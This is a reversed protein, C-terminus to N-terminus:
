QNIVGPAVWAPHVRAIRSVASRECCLLSCYGRSTALNMERSACQEAQAGFRRCRRRIETHTPVARLCLSCRM